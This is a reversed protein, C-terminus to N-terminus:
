ELTGVLTRIRNANRNSRECMHQVVECFPCEADAPHQPAAEATATLADAIANLSTRLGHEEVLELADRQAKSLQTHETM